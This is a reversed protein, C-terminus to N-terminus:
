IDNLEQNRRAQKAKEEREQREKEIRHQFDIERQISDQRLKELYEREAKDKKYYVSDTYTVNGWYDITISGNKFVWEIYDDYHSYEGYHQIVGKEGYKKKYMEQLETESSSSTDYKISYITDHFTKVGISISQDLLRSHIYIDNYGWTTDIDKNNVAEKICQDFSDGLRLGKFSLDVTKLTNQRIDNAISDQYETMIQIYRTHHLSGTAFFFLHPLFLLMLACMKKLSIFTKPAPLSLANSAKRIDKKIVWYTKFSFGLYFLFVVIFLVVGIGTMDSNPCEGLYGFIDIGFAKLVSEKFWFSYEILLQFVICTFVVAHSTQLIYFLHQRKKVFRTISTSDIRISIDDQMYLFFLVVLTITCYTGCYLSEYYTLCSAILQAITTVISIVLVLICSTYSLGSVYANVPKPKNQNIQPNKHNTSNTTNIIYLDSPVGYGMLIQHIVYLTDKETYHNISIINKLITSVEKTLSTRKNFSLFPLQFWGARIYGKRKLLDYLKGDKVISDFIDCHIDSSFANYDKLINIIRRDALISRGFDSIAQSVGKSLEM